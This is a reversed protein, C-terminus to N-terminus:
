TLIFFVTRGTASRLVLSESLRDDLFLCILYDGASVLLDVLDLM